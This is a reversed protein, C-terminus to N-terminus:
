NFLAPPTQESMTTMPKRLIITTHAFNVVGNRTLPMLQALTFSTTPVWTRQPLPERKLMLLLKRLSITNLGHLLSNIPTWLNVGFLPCLNLRATQLLSSSNWVLLQLVLKSAPSMLRKTLPGTSYTFLRELLSLRANRQLSAKTTALPSSSDQYLPVAM